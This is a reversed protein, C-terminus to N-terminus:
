PRPASGPATAENAGAPSGYKRQYRAELEEVPVPKWTETPNAWEDKSLGNETAYGLFGVSLNQLLADPDFDEEAGNMTACRVAYKGAARIAQELDMLSWTTIPNVSTGGEAPLKDCIAFAFFQRSGMRM